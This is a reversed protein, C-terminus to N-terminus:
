DQYHLALGTWVRRGRDSETHDTARQRAKRGAVAAVVVQYAAVAIPSDRSILPDWERGPISM